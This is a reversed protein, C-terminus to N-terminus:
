APMKGSYCNDLAKELSSFPIGNQTQLASYIPRKAHLGFDKMPVAMLKNADLRSRQAIEKALEYYSITTDNTLHLLGSEDDILLDIAMAVFDPLYTPSIYVDSAVSFKQGNQLAKRMTQFPDKAQAQGFFNSSRILLAEPYQALVLQEANAQSRGYNNLPNTLDSETYSEGKAGDFVLDSSFSMLKIGHKKCLWALLSPGFTNSLCCDDFNHEADEVNSFGAANIIAWPQYKNITMSLQDLNSLDLEARGLSRYAIGRHLCSNAFSYGLSGNGGLILVPRAKSAQQQIKSQAKSPYHIRELREWWGPSALLPHDYDGTESIDTILKSIATPRIIGSHLDFAGPEYTGGAETLLKNWGHAGLLSWFTIAVVPIGDAKLLKTDEWIHKLWRLQDERGCHLHAETIALPLQYRQWALKLLQRVGMLTTQGTRIAEIDAYHQRGNGGHTHLPYNVINEDLFRESTIYYNFGLVDPSMLQETFFALAETEIGSELLYNWLPHQVDVKGCLLDISLWRRHNEFDAQQRLAPTSHIHALDETLIFKAQPCHKRIAKMALISAKCENLLIKLFTQDSHGHPHWIGYLGCFRATTLPENIPTYNTIWPFKKAVKGAYVALKEPFDDDLVNAGIPGSGHHALGAIVDVKRDKLYDLHPIVAWRIPQQLDPQQKEWLIPFRLKTIGLNCIKELQTLQNYQNDYALQDFYEDGVRNISCEIGGWTEM